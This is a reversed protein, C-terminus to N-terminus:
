LNLLRVLLELILWVVILIILAVAMIPLSITLAQMPEYGLAFMVGAWIVSLAASIIWLRKSSLKNKNM